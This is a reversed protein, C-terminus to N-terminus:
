AQEKMMLYDKIVMATELDHWEDNPEVTKEVEKIEEVLEDDNMRGEFIELRDFIDYMYDDPNYNRVMGLGFKVIFVLDSYVCEDIHGYHDCVMEDIRNFMKLNLQKYERM